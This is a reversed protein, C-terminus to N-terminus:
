GIIPCEMIFNGWRIIFNRGKSRQWDEMNEAHVGRDFEPGRRHQGYSTSNIKLDSGMETNAHESVKLGNTTLM